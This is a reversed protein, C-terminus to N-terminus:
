QDPRMQRQARVSIRRLLFRPAHKLFFVSVAYRWGPVVIVQGRELGRLSAAVVDKAQMWLSAPIKTRDIEAVDHFESMTYGPCLAQVRVPSGSSALELALGETFSNMWCKTACYSISGPMQWFAAVSRCM